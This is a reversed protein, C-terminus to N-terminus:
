NVRIAFVTRKRSGFQPHTLPEVSCGRWPREIRRANDTRKPYGLTLVIGEFVKGKIRKKWYSNYLRYEFKKTGAKIADFYERKLPLYLIGQIPHDTM